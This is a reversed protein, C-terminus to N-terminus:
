QNEEERERPFALGDTMTYSGKHQRKRERERERHAWLARSTKNCFVIYGFVEMTALAGVSAALLLLCVFRYRPCHNM